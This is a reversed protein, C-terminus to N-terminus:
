LPFPDTDDTFQLQVKLVDGAVLVRPTVFREAWLMLNTALSKVGYGYVTAGPAGVTWQEPETGYLITGKGTSFGPSQWNARLLTKSAYGAWTPLTYDTFVSNAVPTYNNVFLFLYYLSNMPATQKLLLSLLEPKGENAIVLAM